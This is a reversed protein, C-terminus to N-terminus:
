RLLLKVHHVTGDPNYQRDAKFIQWSKTGIAVTGGELATGPAPDVGLYVHGSLTILRREADIRNETKEVLRCKGTWTVTTLAEGTRSQGAEVSITVPTSLIYAPIPALKM